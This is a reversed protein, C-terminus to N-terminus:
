SSKAWKADRYSFATDTRGVDHARGNIPYLHMTSQVTPLRSGHEIHLAIARDSLENVFDACFYWQHGPPYLADFASQLAPYPM